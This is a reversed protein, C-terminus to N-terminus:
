NMAEREPAALRPPQRPHRQLGRPVLVQQRPQRGGGGGGGRRRAGGQRLVLEAGAPLTM